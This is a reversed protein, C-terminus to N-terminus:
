VDSSHSYEEMTGLDSHGPELQQEEDEDHDEDDDDDDDDLPGEEAFPDPRSSAQPERQHQHQHLQHHHHERRHIFMGSQELLFKNQHELYTLDAKTLFENDPTNRLSAGPPSMMKVESPVSLFDQVSASSPIAQPKASATPSATTTSNGSAIFTTNFPSEGWHDGENDFDSSVSAVDAMPTNYSLFAEQAPSIENSDRPTPTMPPRHRSAPDRSPQHYQQHQHHNRRPTGPLKLVNNDDDDDDASEVYRYCDTTMSTTPPPALRHSPRQSRPSLTPRPTTSEGDSPSPQKCLTRSIPFPLPAIQSIKGFNPPPGGRGEKACTKQGKVGNAPRRMEASLEPLGRLFSEHYYANL